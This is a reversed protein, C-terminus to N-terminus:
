SRGRNLKAALADAAAEILMPVLKSEAVQLAYVLGHIALVKAAEGVTGWSAGEALLRERAARNRAAVGADVRAAADLEREIASPNAERERELASPATTPQGQQQMPMQQPMAAHSSWALGCVTCPGEPSAAYLPWYIHDSM